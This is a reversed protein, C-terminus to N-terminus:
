MSSCASIVRPTRKGRVKFRVGPVPGRHAVSDGEGRQLVIASDPLTM